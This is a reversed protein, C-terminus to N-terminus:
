DFKQDEFIYLFVTYPNGHTFPGPEIFLEVIFKFAWM